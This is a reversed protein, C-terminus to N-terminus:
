PESATHHFRYDGLVRERADDVAILRVHLVEDKLSRLLDTPETWVRDDREALVAQVPVRVM